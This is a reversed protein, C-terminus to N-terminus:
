AIPKLMRDDVPNALVVMGELLREDIRPDVDRMLGTIKEVQHLVTLFAAYLPEAKSRDLTQVPFRRGFTHTDVMNLHAVAHTVSWSVRSALDHAPPQTNGRAHKATEALRDFARCLVKFADAVTGHLPHDAPSATFSHALKEARRRVDGDLKQVMWAITPIHRMTENEAWNELLPHESEKGSALANPETALMVKM